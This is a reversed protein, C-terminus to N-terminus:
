PTEEIQFEELTFITRDLQYKNLFLIEKINSCSPKIESSLSVTDIGVLFKRMSIIDRPSDTIEWDTYLVDRGETEIKIRFKYM